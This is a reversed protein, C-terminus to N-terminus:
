QNLGALFPHLVSVFGQLNDDHVYHSADPIDVCAIRPNRRIMEQATQASLFDSNAGRLVLTPTRVAEVHPWLDVLQEATANLRASAIGQADHKWTVGGDASGKLSHMVRSHLAAESINPRQRRWFATAANWTDFREPTALLERKIRDAGNSGLSAGPGMDEIVMGMLNDPHRAAYIFANAGGMSHGMLVFRRLGLQRVLAELDRVYADAFYNREPDWASEGRGRQDLAILRWRDALQLAVPEWTHAYSRLGHLMIIAPADAQGWEIYRLRLNDSHVWGERAHTTTMIADM